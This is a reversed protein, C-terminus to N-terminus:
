PTDKHLGMLQNAATVIGMVREVFDGEMARFAANVDFGRYLLESDRYSWYLVTITDTTKTGDGISPYNDFGARYKGVPTDAYPRGPNNMSYRLGIKAESM